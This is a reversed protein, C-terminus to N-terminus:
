TDAHILHMIGFKIDPKGTEIPAQIKTIQVSPGANFALRAAKGTKSELTVVAVSGIRVSDGPKLDLFLM